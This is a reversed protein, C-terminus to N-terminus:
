NASDKAQWYIIRALKILIAKLDALSNANNIATQVAAWSPLNASIDANKQAQADKFAQQAALEDPTYQPAPTNGAARWLVYAAWDANGQDAPIVAGDSMRRVGQDLLKYNEGYAVAGCFFILGLVVVGWITKKM